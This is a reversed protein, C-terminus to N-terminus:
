LYGINNYINGKFLVEAMGRKQILRVIVNQGMVVNCPATDPPPPSPTHKWTM